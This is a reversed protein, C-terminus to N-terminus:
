LAFRFLGAIVVRLDILQNVFAVRHEVDFVYASRGGATDPAPARDAPSGARSGCIREALLARDGAKFRIDVVAQGAAQRIHFDNLLDGAAPIVPPQRSFTMLFKM